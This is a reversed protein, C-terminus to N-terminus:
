HSLDELSHPAGLINKFHDTVLNQITSLYSFSIVLSNLLVNKPKSTKPYAFQTDLHPIPTPIYFLKRVYRRVIPCPPLALVHHILM